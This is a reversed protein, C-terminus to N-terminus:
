LPLALNVRTGEGPHSIISLRGGAKAAREEMFGLGFGRRVAQPLVVFGRGSDVVSLILEAEERRLTVRVSEAKAHRLSNAVAERAIQFLHSSVDQPLPPISGVIEVDISAGREATRPRALRRLSAILDGEDADPSRLNWVARRAQALTERAAGVATQVHARSAGDPLLKLGMELQLIVAALGQAVTDHMEGAMRSREEKLASAVSDDMMKVLTLVLGAQRATEQVREAETPSLPRTSRSRLCLSGMPGRTGPIPISLFTSFSERSMWDRAAADVDALDSLNLRIWGARPGFFDNWRRGDRRSPSRGLLPHGPDDGAADLKGDVFIWRLDAADRSEGLVYIACSASEVAGGRAALLEELVRESRSAEARPHKGRLLDQVEGQLRQSRAMQARLQDLARSHKLMLNLHEAIAAAGRASPIFGTAGAALAEKRFGSSADAAVLLIPVDSRASRVQRVWQLNSARDARVVIADYDESPPPIATLASHFVADAVHPRIAEILSECPEDSPGAILINVM